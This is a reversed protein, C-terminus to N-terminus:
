QSATPDQNTPSTQEPDLVTFLSSHKDATAPKLDMGKLVMNSAKGMPVLWSRMSIEKRGRDAGGGSVGAERHVTLPGGATEM